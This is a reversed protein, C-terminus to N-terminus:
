RGRLRDAALLLAAHAEEVDTATLYACAITVAPVADSPGLTLQEDLAARLATEVRRCRTWRERTGESDLTQLARIGAAVARELPDRVATRRRTTVTRTAPRSAPM